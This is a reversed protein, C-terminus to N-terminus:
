VAYDPCKLSCGADAHCWSEREPVIGPGDGFSNRRFGLRLQLLHTLIGLNAFRDTVRAANRRLSAAINIVGTCRLWGIAANGMM